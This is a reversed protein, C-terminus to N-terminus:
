ADGQVSGELSNMGSGSLSGFGRFSEVSQMRRLESPQSYVQGQM